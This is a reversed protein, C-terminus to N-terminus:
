VPFEMIFKAGSPQNEQVRILGNHQAVITNVISLGLGMGAKKTSFYPEFLRLKDEPSIGKGSDAVEIRVMKLIADHTVVVCIRGPGEIAAVANNIINAMARKMQQPDLLLRPLDRPPEFEFVIQRHAERYPGLTEEILPVLDSPVPHPAPFRAFASFENVLNRILDVQDIITRTCEEFVPDGMKDEFKRRLRQASLRIPTLPNKVEHAIRRAVERWTALRQAKELETLDDLVALMGMHNGADDQLATVQVLFSKPRNGITVRLPVRLSSAPANLTDEIIESAMRLYEGQLLRKYSKYVVAESRVDLMKEASKNFSTVIGTADLSIVGTSVNRLVVEMYKRRKEIELNQEALRHASLQLQERSMLLDRTMKNFADVLSGMEDNATKAITFGLDGEAVKRTAKALEQIPVTISKALYFGFWIACFVILLAAISLTVYHSLRIPNKLMKIQQYQEFGKSISDMKATLVPTILTTVAVFGEVEDSQAAFPVTAVTRVLEGGPGWSTLTWVRGPPLEQQLDDPSLPPVSSQGLEPNTSLTMRAANTGYIELADLNHTERAETVCRLLEDRADPALLGGEQIDGAIRELSFRNESELHRYLERGVFLSNELSQEVPASFWFEISTTIFQISLVFLVSTPVLSLGVFAMVLKSRLGSGMIRRRREYLLKVINRVVLFFLLILLLLNINIVIFMLVTNSISMGAGFRSIRIGAYSLLAVAVVICVM